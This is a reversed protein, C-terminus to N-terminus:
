INIIRETFNDEADFHWEIRFEIITKNCDSYEFENKFLILDSCWFPEHKNKRYIDLMVENLLQRLTKNNEAELINQYSLVILKNQYSVSNDILFIEKEIEFSGMVLQCCACILKM